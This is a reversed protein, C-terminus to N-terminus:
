AYPLNDPPSALGSQARALGPTRVYRTPLHFVTALEEATMMQGSSDGWFDRSQYNVLAVRKRYRRRSQKMFYNPGNTKNKSPKFSNLHFSNFQKFAGIGKSINPKYLKGAPAIYLVRIKTRFGTRSIKQLIGKMAADEAPNSFKLERDKKEEGFELPGQFAAKFLLVPGVFVLRFMQAFINLKPEVKSKGSIESIEEEGKTSWKSIEKASVPKILVQVWFEEEDGLHSYGEVMAQHPDMFKVDEALTEEFERYTRIPYIDDDVLEIDSSWLDYTKELNKYDFRRTYDPAEKIEATPYQGYLVGEFFKAHATPVVLYYHVENQRCWIECSYWALFYGLIYKEVADPDKHIGGWVEIANEMAQPTQDNDEPIAVEYFTWEISSVYDIHKILLYVEWAVWMALMLVFIWGWALIVDLLVVAIAGFDVM